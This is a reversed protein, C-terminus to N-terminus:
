DGAFRCLGEYNAREAAQRRADSWAGVSGSSVCAHSRKSDRRDQAREAAFGRGGRAGLDVVGEGVPESARGRLWSALHDLAARYLAVREGCITRGLVQGPAVEDAWQAPYGGISSVIRMCHGHHPSRKSTITSADAEEVVTHHAAWEAIARVTGIEQDAIIARRDRIEILLTDARSPEVPEANPSEAARVAEDAAPAILDFLPATGLDM